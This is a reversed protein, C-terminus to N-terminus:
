GFIGIGSGFSRRGFDAAHQGHNEIAEVAQASIIFLPVLHEVLKQSAAFAVAIVFQEVLDRATATFGMFRDLQTLSHHLM